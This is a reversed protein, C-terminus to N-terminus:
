EGLVGSIARTTNWRRCSPCLWHYANGSFGCHRCRYRPQGELLRQMLERVLEPGVQDLSVGQESLLTMLYELGRVTPRRAVQDLLFEAAEQKSSESKLRALTLIPTTMRSKDILTELWGELTELGDVRRHCDVIRDMAALAVDPDLDCARRYHEAAASWRGESWALEGELLRARPNRPDYRRAQRLYKRCAETDSDELAARALECHFQAILEDRRGDDDALHRANAIAKHWDKEQQYIDLLQRAPVPAGPDHELLESFLREARDLLGARMYDEGLELLAQSRQEETLNPRTMIHKHFRIAKDMEGRRRFLNGLALHTEVTDQNIEAIELFVEIAKDPQENLLFNLGRFYNSSLTSNQQRGRATGRRAAIWGTAAAVPLLAFLVLVEPM